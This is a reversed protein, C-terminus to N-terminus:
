RRSPDPLVLRGDESLEFGPLEFREALLGPVQERELAEIRQDAASAEILATGGWDSMVLRRGDPWQRSVLFGTVFRSAPHTSTWWNATEIDAKPVPHPLFAYLDGWEGEGAATQLVYEPEREIVRYRWGSQEHVEGPGWPLPELLTGGGFGVDAHWREGQWNVGLLLHSRPRPAGPDAGLLVRALYLEVEAGLARLACGLLLNQEFCYGGRRREVLKAALDEENLSVVVGRQPDLSEFPISTAHARHLEALGPADGTLGVRALYSDLEFM